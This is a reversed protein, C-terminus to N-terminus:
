ANGIGAAAPPQVPEPDPVNGKGNFPVYIVNLSAEDYITSGGAQGALQVSHSGAAVPWASNTACNSENDSNGDPQELRMTRRSSTIEAGNLALFCTTSVATGVGRTAGTLFVDSSAAMVLYGRKPATINVSLIQTAGDGRRSTRVLAGDRHKEAARILQDARYGNLKDANIIQGAIATGGATAAATVMAVVITATHRRVINM